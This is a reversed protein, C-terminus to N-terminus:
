KIVKKESFTKIKNMNINECNVTWIGKEVYSDSIAMYTSCGDSTVLTNDPEFLRFIEGKCLDEFLLGVWEQYDDDYIECRRNEIKEAEIEKKTYDCCIPFGTMVSKKMNVERRYCVTEHQNYKCNEVSCYIKPM